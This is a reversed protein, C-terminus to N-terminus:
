PGSPRLGLITVKHSSFHGHGSDDHLVASVKYSLVGAAYHLDDLWIGIERVHHNDDPYNLDWGTLMPIAYAYPINDIVVEKKDLQVVAHGGEGVRPLIAFPPQIVGVDSGGMASVLEGFEYDRRTDNDKLIANTGWSVAGTDVRGTPPTPLPNLEGRAKKYPWSQIFRESHELNYAVQLLHHDVESWIWDGGTRWDFGFGRPLIAATPGSALGADHLFSPFWSLATTTGTNEAVFFNDSGSPAGESKCFSEGDGQDVSAHLNTDNWAVVTYWYCWDIADNESSLMSMDGLVGAANWTLKGPEFGAPQFRIKGIVTAMANVHHDEAGSYKLKWGNLFVAARNAYDPIGVSQEINVIGYNNKDLHACGSGHMVKITGLDEFVLAPPEGSASTVPATNVNDCFGTSGPSFRCAQLLALLVVADLLFFASQIFTHKTRM